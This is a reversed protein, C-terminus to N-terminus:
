KCAQLTDVSGWRNYTVSIETNLPMKYVEDYLGSKESIFINEVGEGEVNNRKGVCHLEIGKVLNNTKKSTYEVMRKGVIKM